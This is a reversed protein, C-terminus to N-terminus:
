FDFVDNFNEDVYLGKEEVLSETDTVVKVGYYIPIFHTVSEISPFSEILYDKLGGGSLAIRQNGEESKLETIIRYINSHDHHFTDYSLGINTLMQPITFGSFGIALGIVILLNKIKEKFISRLLIKLDM